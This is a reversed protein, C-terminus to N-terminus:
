LKAKMCEMRDNQTLANQVCLQQPTMKAVEYGPGSNARDTAQGPAGFFNVGGATLTASTIPESDTTSVPTNTGGMVIYPDIFGAYITTGKMDWVRADDPVAADPGVAKIWGDRIVITANSVVEGPKVVVKDGVLAHVGLPAPRFGPPLIEAARAGLCLLLAVQCFGIVKSM